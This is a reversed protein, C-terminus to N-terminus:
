TVSVQDACLVGEGGHEFELWLFHFPGSLAGHTDSPFLRSRSYYDRLESLYIQRRKRLITLPIQLGDIRRSWAWGLSMIINRRCPGAIRRRRGVYPPNSLILDYRRNLLAQFLYSEIIELRGSVDHLQVNQQALQLAESSIDVLDVHAEPFTLASAIGICGGGCCLDLIRRPENGSLPELRRELLEAIPSRPVLARKDSRFPYGAFWAVGVLYATPVRDQIRMRVRNELLELEDTAIEKRMASEYAHWDLDLSAFVLYCAEDRANDTGHGYCLGASELRGTLKDIYNKVLM